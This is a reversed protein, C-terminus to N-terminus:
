ISREFTNPDVWVCIIGKEICANMVISDSSLGTKMFSMAKVQPPVSNIAAKMTNWIDFIVHDIWCPDNPIKGDIIDLSTVKILHDLM